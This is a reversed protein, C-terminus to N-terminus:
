AAEAGGRMLDRLARFGILHVGADQVERLIQPDLFTEYDAVRCPWDYAAAAERLEPSDKTPHLLLCTLGPRLAEIKRRLQGGRDAADDLPMMTVDDFLPLGQEEWAPARALLLEQDQAAVAYAYFEPVQRRFLLGPVRYRLALAAYIDVLGDDLLAFMHSDVHTIDVGAALAREIQTQLEARVADAAASGRMAWSTRHFYGEEDLLGTRPDRSHLPGWRYRSWESTLTLHVGMDLHPHSGNAACFEATAPFWPCPVMTAASTLLGVDILERYADLSSQFNGIDDAHTILVRDGAAFGLKKLVPNPAIM